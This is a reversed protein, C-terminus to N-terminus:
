RASCLPTAILSYSSTCIAVVSQNRSHLAPPGAAAEHSVHSLAHMLLEFHPKRPGSMFKVLVSVVTKLQQMSTQAWHSM